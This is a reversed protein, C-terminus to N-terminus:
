KDSPVEGTEIQGHVRCQDRKTTARLVSVYVSRTQERIFGCQRGSLAKGLQKFFKADNELAMQYIFRAMGPLDRVAAFVLFDRSVKESMQLFTKKKRNVERDPRIKDGRPNAALRFEKV